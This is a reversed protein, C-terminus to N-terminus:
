REERRTMLKHLESPILRDRAASPPWHCLIPQHSWCLSRVTISKSWNWSEYRALWFWRFKRMTGKSYSWFSIRKGKSHSLWLISSWAKSVMRSWPKSFLRDSFSALPFSTFTFTNAAWDRRVRQSGMSQQGGPEETWPIRWALISSYTAMGKELPDEWGLTSGPDGASLLVLICFLNGTDVNWSRSGAM